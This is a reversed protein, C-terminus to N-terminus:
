ADGVSLLWPPVFWLPRGRPLVRAIRILGIRAGPLKILFKVQALMDLDLEDFAVDHYPPGRAELVRAEDGPQDVAQALTARLLAPISDGIAVQLKRRRRL